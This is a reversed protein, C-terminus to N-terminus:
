QKWIFGGSIKSLGSLNNFIGTRSIGLLKAAETTSNFIKILKHNLDYQKVPIARKHTGISWTKLRNREKETLDYKKHCSPCLQQWDDKQRLAKRSISSWEYRKAKHSPNFSCYNAKGFVKYVWHHVAHYKISKVYSMFFVRQPWCGPLTALKLSYEV